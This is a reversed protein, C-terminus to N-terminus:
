SIKDLSKESKPLRKSLSFFIFYSPNNIIAEPLCSFSIEALACYLPILGLSIFYKPIYNWLRYEELLETARESGQRYALNLWHAARSKSEPLGQGIYHMLGLNIQANANGERKRSDNCITLSCNSAMLFWIAAEEYDKEVGLGNLYLVGIGNQASDHGKDAAKKFWFLAKDYDQSTSAERSYISGLNFQSETHGQSAAKSAWFIAKEEDKTVGSGQFYVTSLYWQSRISGAEADKLLQQLNM